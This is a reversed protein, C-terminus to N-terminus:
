LRSRSWCIGGSLGIPHSKRERHTRTGPLAILRRPIFYWLRTRRRLSLSLELSVSVLILVCACLVFPSPSHFVAALYVAQPACPAWDNGGSWLRPFKDIERGGCSSCLGDHHCHLRLHYIKLYLGPNFNGVDKQLLNDVMKFTLLKSYFQVTFM